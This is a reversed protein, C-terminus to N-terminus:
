PDLRPCLHGQDTDAPSLCALLFCLEGNVGVARHCQLRRSGLRGPEQVVKAPPSAQLPKGISVLEDGTSFFAVVPRRRVTLEGIGLSAIVGLDAPSLRVGAEIVVQGQQVDEGALRINEGLRHEADVRIKASEAIQAQEQMIVADTGEPLMGGTPIRGAEGPQIAFDPEGGMPASGKVVLYAPNGDSAGFTSKGCVAYGDMTARSFGPLDADALVDEALVRGVCDNLAVSETEVRSFKSRFALVQDLDMVNFFEAM